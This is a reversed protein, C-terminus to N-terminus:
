FPRSIVKGRILATDPDWWIARLHGQVLKFLEWVVDAFIPHPTSSTAQRKKRASNDAKCLIFIESIDTVEPTVESDMKLLETAIMYM